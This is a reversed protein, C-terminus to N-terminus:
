TLPAFVLRPLQAGTDAWQHKVRDGIAPLRDGYGVLHTTMQVAEDLRVVALIYPAALDSFFSREVRTFSVVEGLGPSEVWEVAGGSMHISSDRPFWQFKQTTVCRQLVLRKEAAAEWFPADHACSLPQPLEM